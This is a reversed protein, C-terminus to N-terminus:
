ELPIWRGQNQDYGWMKGDQPNRERAIIRPQQDPASQGAQPNQQQVNKVVANTDVPRSGPGASILGQTAKDIQVQVAALRQKLAVVDPPDAIPKGLKFDLTQSKLKDYRAVEEGIQRAQAQLVRVLQAQQSAGAAVSGRGTAPM